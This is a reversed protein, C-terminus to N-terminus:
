AAARAKGVYRWAISWLVLSAAIMVAVFPGKDYIPVNLADAIPSNFENVCVFAGTFSFVQDSNFAVQTCYSKFLAGYGYSGTWGGLIAFVAAVFYFYPKRTLDANQSRTTVYVPQQSAPPTYIPQEYTAQPASAANVRIIKTGCSACFSADEAAQTGCNVCFVNPM